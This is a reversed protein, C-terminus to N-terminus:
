RFKDSNLTRLAVERVRVDRLFRQAAVRRARRLVAAAVVAGVGARVRLEALLQLGEVEVVVLAVQVVVQVLVRVM